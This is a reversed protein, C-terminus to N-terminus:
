LAEIWKDALSVRLRYWNLMQSINSASTSPITPWNAADADLVQSPISAMYNTLLNSINIESLVGARLEAYRAKLADKKHKLVLDMARHRYAYSAFTPHANALTFSKGDWLLGFTSDMDYGTIFWKTGDYTCLLYNKFTCDAAGTLVTQIYHDIVSDWDLYQAVTTDLDSGDSNIVASLMRNLSTLAWDTNNEDTIYEVDFATGLTTELTQFGDANPQPMGRACLICEQTGSGMGLM